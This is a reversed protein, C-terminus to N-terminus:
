REFIPPEGNAPTQPPLGSCVKAAMKDSQENIRVSTLQESQRARILRLWAATRSPQFYIGSRLCNSFQQSNLQPYFVVLSLQCNVSFGVTLTQRLQSQDFIPTKLKSDKKVEFNKKVRYLMFIRKECDDHKQRDLSCFFNSIEKICNLNTKFFYSARKGSSLSLSVSRRKCIWCSPSFFSKQSFIDNDRDRRSPM